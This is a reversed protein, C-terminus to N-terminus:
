MLIKPVYFIAMRFNKNFEFLISFLIGSTLLLAKKRSTNHFLIEQIGLSLM